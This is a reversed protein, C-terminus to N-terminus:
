PYGPQELDPCRRFIDLYDPSGDACVRELPDRGEKGGFDQSSRSRRPYRRARSLCSTKSAPPSSLSIATRRGYIDGGCCIKPSLGTNRESEGAWPLVAFAREQHRTWGAGSSATIRISKKRSHDQLRRGTRNPMLTNSSSSLSTPAHLRFTCPSIGPYSWYLHHTSGLPIGERESPVTILAVAEDRSFPRLPLNSFINFFPSDAIDKNHCLQQLEMYSSTVYAVMFNNALFRLFSFFQMDFNENKTIAEFEDMLIIIRKGESSLEQVVDRLQDLNKEGRIHKLEKSQEYKFMSFLIDIFKPITLDASRQFDMFIFIANGHNQMLRKRNKRNYIYNLLSSKGIRREGVVSISQPHPADLRSYIRKVERRRGFFQRPATIPPGVVFPSLVAAQAPQGTDFLEELLPAPSPHQGSRLFHHCEAQNLGQRRSLERALAELDSLEAPIHGRGWYEITSGGADRGLAYHVM